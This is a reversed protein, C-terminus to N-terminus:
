EGTEKQMKVWAEAVLKPNAEAWEKVIAHIAASVGEGLIPHKAQIASLAALEQPMLRIDIKRSPLKTPSPLSLKKTM